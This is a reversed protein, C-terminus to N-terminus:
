IPQPFRSPKGKYDTITQLGQWMRHADSATYYPNLRLGTNVSKRNSPKDSPMADPNTDREKIIAARAKLEPRINGTIWPKQNPYTRITVTPVVDNIGRISSAPSQPSISRLAM